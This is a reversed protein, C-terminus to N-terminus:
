TNVRSAQFCPFILVVFGFRPVTEHSQKLTLATQKPPEPELM